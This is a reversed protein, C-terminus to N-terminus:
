HVPYAILPLGSDPLHLDNPGTIPLISSLSPLLRPLRPYQVGMKTYIIIWIYDDRGCSGRVCYLGNGQNDTKFVFSGHGIRVEKVQEARGM